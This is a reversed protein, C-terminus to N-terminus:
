VLFSLSSGFSKMLVPVNERVNESDLVCM